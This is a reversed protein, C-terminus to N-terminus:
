RALGSPTRSPSECRAMRGASALRSSGSRGSGAATRATAAVASANRLCGAFVVDVLAAAEHCLTAGNPSPLALLADSALELLSSPRLSPGVGRRPGASIALAASAERATAAPDGWRQPLVRAGRSVVIDVATGFSLVDVVVLVSCTPALAAVGARGWELGVRHGSQVHEVQISM